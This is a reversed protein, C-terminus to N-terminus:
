TGACYYNGILVAPGIVADPPASCPAGMWGTIPNDGQGIAPQIVANQFGSAHWTGCLTVRAPRPFDETVYPCLSPPFVPDFGVVVSQAGVGGLYPLQKVAANTSALTATGPACPAYTPGGALGSCAVVRTNETSLRVSRIVFAATYTYGLSASGRYVSGQIRECGASQNYGPAGFVDVTGYQVPTTPTCDFTHFIASEATGTTGPEWGAGCGISLFLAIWFAAAFLLHRPKM